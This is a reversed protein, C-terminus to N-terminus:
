LDVLSNLLPASAHILLPANKTLVARDRIQGKNIHINLGLFLFDTEENLHFNLM